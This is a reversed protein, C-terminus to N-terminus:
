EEPLSFPMPLCEAPFKAPRVRISKIASGARALILKDNLPSSPASPNKPSLFNHFFQSLPPFSYNTNQLKLVIISVYVCEYLINTIM